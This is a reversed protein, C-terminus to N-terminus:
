IITLLVYLKIKRKYLFRAKQNLAIVSFGCDDLPGSEMEDKQEVIKLLLPTEIQYCGHLLCFFDHLVSSSYMNNRLLPGQFCGRSLKM